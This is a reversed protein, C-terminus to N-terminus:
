KLYFSNITIIIQFRMAASFNRTARKRQGIVSLSAEGAHFLQTFAEQWNTGTENCAYDFTWIRRYAIQVLPVYVGCLFLTDSSNVCYSIIQVFEPIM